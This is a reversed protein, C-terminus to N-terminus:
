PAPSTLMGPSHPFFGSETGAILATVIPDADLGRTGAPLVDLAALYVRTMHFFKRRDKAPVPEAAPVEIMMPNVWDNRRKMRFDLHPATSLGTNGVYGIVQGQAVRVGKRVGKGFGSLHGYTTLYTSNHRIEVINGFGKKWGAYVVSGEGVTVVPTGSPASYDIGLHPMWRKLIPHYRRKTFGSSIRRYNLPSRLFIKQLSGGDPAYYASRGGAPTFRVGAARERAGEYRAILIDGYGRFGDEGYMAEALLEFRDGRRCETLFDFTWSFIDSFRVVLDPSAGEAILSEWLSSRITGEFRVIERTLPESERTGTWAAGPDRRVVFRDGGRRHVAYAVLRDRDDWTVELRDDTRYRSPPVYEAMADLMGQAANREIGRRLAWGMPTEGRGLTGEFAHLAKERIPADAEVAAATKTEEGSFCGALALLAPAAIAALLCQTANRRIM